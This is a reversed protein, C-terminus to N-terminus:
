PRKLLWKESAYRAHALEELETKPLQVEIEALSESLAASFFLQWQAVDEIGQVSGQHLLGYKSRKQGAGALKKGSPDVIDYPVPHVFCSRAGANEEELTLKCEVGSKQMSDALLAHIMEYSQNGRMQEVPHGKPFFLSYTVDVRHDVIGGGTWRRVYTLEESPFDRKADALSEFYGLTVTPESWTYYRLLATDGLGELLWQDVAMNEAGSRAVPDIWQNLKTLLPMLETILRLM